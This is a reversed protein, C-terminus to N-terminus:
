SVSEAGTSTASKSLSRMWFKAGIAPSRNKTFKLGSIALSTLEIFTTNLQVSIRFFFTGRGLYGAFACARVMLDVASASCTAGHMARAPGNVVRMRSGFLKAFGAGDRLRPRARGPHGAAIASTWTREVTLGPDGTTGLHRSLAQVRALCMGLVFFGKSTSM